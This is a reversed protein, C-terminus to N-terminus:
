DDKQSVKCINAAQRETRSHEKVVQIESDIRAMEDRNGAKRADRKALDLARKRKAGAFRDTTGDPYSVRAIQAVLIRGAIGDCDLGECDVIEVIADKKM